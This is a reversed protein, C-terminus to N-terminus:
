RKACPAAAILAAAYSTRNRGSNGSRAMNEAVFVRAGVPQGALEVLEIQLHAEDLLVVHKGGDLRDDCAHELFEGLALGDRLGPRANRQPAKRL